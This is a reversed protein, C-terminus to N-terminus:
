ILHLLYREDLAFRQALLPQGNPGKEVGKKVLLYIEAVMVVALGIDLVANGVDAYGM